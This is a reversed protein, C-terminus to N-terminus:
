LTVSPKLKPASWPLMCRALGPATRAAVIFTSPLLRQFNEEFHESTLGDFTPWPRNEHSRGEGQRCLGMAVLSAEVAAYSAAAKLSPVVVVGAVHAPTAM